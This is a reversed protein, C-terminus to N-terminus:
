ESHEHTGDRCLECTSIYVLRSDEDRGEIVYRIKDGLPSQNRIFEAVKWADDKIPPRANPGFGVVVDGARVAFTYVPDLEARLFEAMQEALERRGLLFTITWKM